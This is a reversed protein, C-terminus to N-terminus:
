AHRDGWISPQTTSRHVSFLPTQGDYVVVTTGDPSLDAIREAQFTAFELDNDSLLYSRPGDEPEAYLKYRDGHM